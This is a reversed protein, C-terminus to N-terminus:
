KDSKAGVGAKRLNSIRKIGNLTVESLVHQSLMAPSQRPQPECSVPYLPCLPLLLVRGHALRCSGVTCLSLLPLLNHSTRRPGRTPPPQGATPCVSLKTGDEMQLNDGSTM